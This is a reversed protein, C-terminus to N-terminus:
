LMARRLRSNMLASIVKRGADKFGAPVPYLLLDTTCDATEKNSEAPVMYKEEYGDSWSKLEKAFVGGDRWGQESGPLCSFDIKMGQGVKLWFLGMAAVEM